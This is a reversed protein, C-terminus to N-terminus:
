SEYEYNEIQHINPDYGLPHGVPQLQLFIWTKNLVVDYM